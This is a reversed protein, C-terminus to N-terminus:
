TQTYILMLGTPTCYVPVSRNESKKQSSSLVASFTCPARLSFSHSLLIYLLLPLFVPYSPLSLSLLSADWRKQGRWVHTAAVTRSSSAQRSDEPALSFVGCYLLDSRPMLWAAKARTSLRSQLTQIVLDLWKKFEEDAWGFLYFRTLAARNMWNSSRGGNQGGGNCSRCRSHCKFHLCPQIRPSGIVSKM